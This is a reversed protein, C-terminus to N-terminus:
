PEVLAFFVALGAQLVISAPVSIVALGFAASYLLPGYRYQRTITQVTEPSTDPKLLHYGSSAYRWLLNFILAILVMTGAYVLAAIRREDNEIYEALLATSFNLFTILMLLLSNLFLLRNDARAILKFLHHHNVWMVSITLFSVVYAVYSPWQEGLARLLDPEARPVKIDLVLLTIAIAFVGDSFAELRATENM